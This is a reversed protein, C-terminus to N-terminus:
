LFFKLITISFGLIVYDITMQSQTGGELIFLLVM